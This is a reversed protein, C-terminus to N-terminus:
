RSSVAAFAKRIVARVLAPGTEEDTQMAAYDQCERVQREVLQCDVLRAAAGHALMLLKCAFVALADGARESEVVTLPHLDPLSPSANEIAATVAEFEPTSRIDQSPIDDCSLLDVLSQCASLLDPSKSVESPPLTEQQPM